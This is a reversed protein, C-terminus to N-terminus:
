VFTETSFSQNLPEALTNGKASASQTPKPPRYSDRAFSNSCNSTFETEGRQPGICGCWRRLAKRFDTKYLSYIFPDISSNGVLTFLSVEILKTPVSKDFGLAEIINIIILPLWCVSFTIILVAFVKAARVEAAINM